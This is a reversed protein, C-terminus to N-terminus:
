GPRGPEDTPETELEIREKRVPASIVEEDHVTEKTLRVREVPVRETTVVPQEAYLTLDPPAVDDDPSDDGATVPVEELRVEERTVPVTIQREETVLYKRLRVKTTPEQRTGAVLREESRTMAGDGAGDDAGMGYYALLRDADEHSLPAGTQRVPAQTVRQRDVAVILRGEALRAGPLPVFSEQFSLTGTRVTVWLPDNSEPDVYIQDIPGIREGNVDFVEIGNLHGLDDQTIM